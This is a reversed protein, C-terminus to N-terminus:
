RKGGTKKVWDWGAAPSEPSWGWTGSVDREQRRPRRSGPRLPRGCPPSARESVDM